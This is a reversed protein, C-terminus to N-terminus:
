NDLSSRETSPSEDSDGEEFSFERQVEEPKEDEVGLTPPTRSFPEDDSSPVSQQDGLNPALLVSGAKLLLEGAFSLAIGVARVTQFFRMLKFM